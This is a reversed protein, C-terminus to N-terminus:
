SESSPRSRQCPPLRVQANKVIGATEHLLLPVRIKASAFAPPRVAPRGPPTPSRSAPQPPIGATRLPLRPPDWGTSGPSRRHGEVRRRRGDRPWPGGGVAWRGRVAAPPSSTREAMRASWTLVIARSRSTRRAPATEPVVSCRTSPTTRNRSPSQGRAPLDAVAKQVADRALGLQPLVLILESRPAGRPLPRGRHDRAAALAGRRPRSEGAGHRRPRAPGPRFRHDRRPRRRAVRGDGPRAHRAQLEVLHFDGAAREAGRATRAGQEIRRRRPPRGEGNRAGRRGGRGGAPRAGASLREHPAVGHERRRSTGEVPGKGGAGGHM